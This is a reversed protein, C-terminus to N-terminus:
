SVVTIAATELLSRLGDYGQLNEFNNGYNERATKLISSVRSSHEAVKRGEPLLSNLTRECMVIDTALQLTKYMVDKDSKWANSAMFKQVAKSATTLYSEYAEKDKCGEDPKKLLAYCCLTDAQLIVKSSLQGMMSIAEKRLIEFNAPKEVEIISLILQQVIEEIDPKKSINMYEKIAYIAQIYDAVNISMIAYNRWMESHNRNFKLAEKMTRQAQEPRKLHLFAASMNNWAEYETPDVHVCNRYAAIADAFRELKYSVHGLAFLTEAHLPKIKVARSLNKFAGEYDGRKMLNMGLATRAKASTDNSLEIAKEYWSMDRTIDGMLCLRYPTEKVSLLNQVMTEAKDSQGISIYCEVLSDYDYIDNYVRLAEANSGVRLLLSAYSRAYIWFPKANSSLLWPLRAQYQEINFETQRGDVSHIGQLDNKIIEAQMIAREIKRKRECENLCRALLARLQVGYVKRYSVIEHVFSEAKEFLIEDPAENKQMIILSTIMCALHVPYLTAKESTTALPATKKIETMVTDDDLKLALPVDETESFPTFQTVDIKGDVSAQAFLQPLDTVQFYTRKGLEGFFDFEVGCLERAKSCADIAKAVEFYILYTNAVILHYEVQEELSLHHVFRESADHLEDVCKKVNSCSDTLVTAYIYLFKTRLFNIRGNELTKELNWSDYLVLYAVLFYQVYYTLPHIDITNTKLSIFVSLPDDEFTKDVEDIINQVHQFDDANMEYKQAVKDTLNYILEHEKVCGAFVSLTVRELCIESLFLKQNETLDELKQKINSLPKVQANADSFDLKLENLLSRIKPHLLYGQFVVIDCM